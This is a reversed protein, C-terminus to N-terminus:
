EHEDKRDEGGLTLQEAFKTLKQLGRRRWQSVSM